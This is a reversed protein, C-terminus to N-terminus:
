LNCKIIIGETKKKKKNKTDCKHICIKAHINKSRDKLIASISIQNSSKRSRENGTRFLLSQDHM